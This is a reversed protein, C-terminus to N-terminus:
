SQSERRKPRTVERRLELSGPVEIEAGTDEPRLDSHVDIIGLQKRRKADLRIHPNSLYRDKPDM